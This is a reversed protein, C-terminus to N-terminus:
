NDAYRIDAAERGDLTTFACTFMWKVLRYRGNTFYGVPLKVLVTNWGKNLTITSAPALMESGNIWLRSHRWDWAGPPPPADRESRSCNQTEFFLRVEQEKESYVRTRAYVTSNTQPDSIAGAVVSPGWVHRLYIGSGTVTRATEWQGQEPPFVAELNGENPYVPSLEWRANGQRVYPVPVDKLLTEKFFLLRNEFDLFDERAPGTEPLITGFEKYYQHGGGRWARDALALANAYLNNGRLMTDEEYCEDNWLCLVAGKMEATEQEVDGIRSTQLGIIDGFLDYHNIYHLRSDVAVTGEQPFARSTWLQMGDIRGPGYPYGPHWSLAKRGRSRVHAVMEPVFTPDTFDVEDTGLHIYESTFVELAEDLLEKVVQKGQPTQMGFGLAREFADSHGPMDLEPVLTVGRQRCYADLERMQEQTYYLGPLRTMSSAANLQPYKRSELRWAERETLHLHLVNLKCHSFVDVERYLEELSVFTRGVDMMWGRVRFSPWDVIRCRPIRGDQELQALTQRANWLGHETVAELHISDKEVVLRYAEEQNSAEPLAAVLKEAVPTHAKVFGKEWSVEKPLPLLVPRVAQSCSALVVVAALIFTRKVPYLLRDNQHNCSQM